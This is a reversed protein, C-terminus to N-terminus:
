TKGLAMLGLNLGSFLGSLSFFITILIIKLWLPILSTKVYVKFSTYTTNGQHIWDISDQLRACVYLIKNEHAISPALFISGGTSTTANFDIPTTIRDDNCSEGYSKGNPTFSIHSIGKVRHGFIVLTMNVGAAVQLLGDKYESTKDSSFVGEVRSPDSASTLYFNCLVFFILTKLCM